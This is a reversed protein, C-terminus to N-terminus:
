CLKRFRSKKEAIRKSIKRKTAKKKAVFKQTELKGIEHELIKKANSIHHSVSGLSHIARGEASHLRKIRRVTTSRKRASGVKRRKKTKMRVVRGIKKGSRYEAGAKKIAGKWTGGKKYISKARTTIKKLTASGSM